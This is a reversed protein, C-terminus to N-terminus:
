HQAQGTRSGAAARRNRPTLSAATLSIAAVLAVIAIATAAVLVRVAGAYCRRCTEFEWATILAEAREPLEGEGIFRNVTGPRHAGYLREPTSRRTM